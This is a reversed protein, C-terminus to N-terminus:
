FLFDAAPYVTNIHSFTAKKTQKKKVGIMGKEIDHYLILLAFVTM